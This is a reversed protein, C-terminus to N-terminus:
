ATAITRYWLHLVATSDGTTFAATQNSIYLGQNVTATFAGTALAGQLMESTSAAGTISAAAVTATALEGALNATNGYQLGIVGGAAFQTTGYTMALVAREVVHLTNAGGAALVLVPTAYMALLNAATLPVAAYQILNAATKASTVANAALKATTVAGDIINGTGVSGATSFSAVSITGAEKDIADVYVLLNGDSGTLFIYDYISMQYVVSAFYNAASIQAVTDSASRYTYIAPGNILGADTQFAGTNYALSVRTFNAANFAM